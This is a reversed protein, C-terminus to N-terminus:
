PRERLRQWARVHADAILRWDFSARVRRLGRESLQRRFEADDALNRVKRALDRWDGETFVVGADGIVGPIEGCTSGIVPVGCAMAELLVRGFQERWPMRFWPVVTRYRVGVSPLVLMDMCNVYRPVEAPDVWGTTVVRRGLAEQPVHDRLWGQDRVRGVLLAQFPSGLEEVARLLLETGKQPGANGVFGLVIGELGLSKRLDRVDLPRFLQTDVGLPIRTAPGKYGKARYVAEAAETIPALHDIHRLAFHEFARAPWPYRVLLNQAAYVSVPVGEHSCNRLRVIQATSLYGPEGIVYPVDPRAERFARALAGPPYVNLALQRAPLLSPFEWAEVKPHASLRRMGERAEARFGAGIVTLREVQAHDAVCRLFFTWYAFWNGVCSILVRV